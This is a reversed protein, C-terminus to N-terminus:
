EEDPPDKIAGIPWRGLPPGRQLLWPWLDIFISIFSTKVFVSM